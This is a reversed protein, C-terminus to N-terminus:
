GQASVAIKKLVWHPVSGLNTCTSEVSVMERASNSDDDRRDDGQIVSMRQNNATERSLTATSSYYM